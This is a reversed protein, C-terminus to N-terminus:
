FDIVDTNLFYNSLKQNHKKNKILHEYNVKANHTKDRLYNLFCKIHRLTTQSIKNNNEKIFDKLKLDIIVIRNKTEYHMIKRDYSYLVYHDNNVIVYAKNYFSKKDSYNEFTIDKM